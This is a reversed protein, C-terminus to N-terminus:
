KKRKPSFMSSIISTAESLTFTTKDEDQNEEGAYGPNKVSGPAPRQAAAEALLDQLTNELSEKTRTVHNSIAEERDVGVVDPKNLQRKLDVVKEALNRHIQAHLDANENLLRQNEQEFENLRSELRQKEMVLNTITGQMETIKAQLQTADTEQVSPTQVGPTQDAGEQVPTAPPQNGEQTQTSPPTVPTQDQGEQLPTNKPKNDTDEEDMNGISREATVLGEILKKADQNLSEYLNIEPHRINQFLGEAIQFIELHVTEKSSKKGKPKDDDDDGTLIDDGEPSDDVMEVSFNGAFQDAPVNVYSVERGFTTGIIFHATQGDYEEGPYHDCWEQTRDTGCINCTVKDTTAGISVTQYRGDLVKEIADPDTIECTFVLGPKGSRTAEVFEAKLIRGIPEGNYDNHHTLVPKNYPTTWSNLGATLGEKTYYTYNATRGVHIAEMQVILKRRKGKASESLQKVSESTLNLPQISVAEIFKMDKPILKKAQHEKLTYVIEGRGKV